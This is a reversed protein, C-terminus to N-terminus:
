LKEHPKEKMSFLLMGPCFGGLTNFRSLSGMERLKVEVLATSDSRPIKL